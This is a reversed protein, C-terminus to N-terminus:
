PKPGACQQDTGQSRAQPPEGMLSPLPLRSFGPLLPDRHGTRGPQRAEQGNWANGLAVAIFARVSRRSSLSCMNSGVLNACNRM